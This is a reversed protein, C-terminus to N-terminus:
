EGGGDAVLAKLAAAEEDTFQAAADIGAPGRAPTGTDQGDIHWNGNEGITPTAGDKGPDGKAAKAAVEAELETMRAAPYLDGEAWQKPEIAM